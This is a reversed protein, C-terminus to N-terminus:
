SSPLSTSKLFPRHSPQTSTWNIAAHDRTLLSWFSLVVDHGCRRKPEHFAEGLLDSKPCSLMVRSMKPAHCMEEQKKDCSSYQSWLANVLRRLSSLTGLAASLRRIGGGVKSASSAEVSRGEGHTVRDRRIRRVAKVRRSRELQSSLRPM